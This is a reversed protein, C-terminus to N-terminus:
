NHVHVYQGSFGTKYNKLPYNGPGSFPVGGASLAYKTSCQPCIANIFDVNVVINLGNVAFDYPCTRDYAYFEDLTARFVIIGNDNWGASRYGWNNTAKTIIKHNTISQLDIFDPDNLDITFDVYTDPIVDNKNKKCSILSIAVLIPILFFIIKSKLKM